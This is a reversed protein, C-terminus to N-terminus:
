YTTLILHHIMPSLAVKMLQLTHPDQGQLEKKLNEESQIERLKFNLM